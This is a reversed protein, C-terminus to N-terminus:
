QSTNWEDEEKVFDVQLPLAVYVCPEPDLNKGNIFNVLCFEGDREILIETLCGQSWEGVSKNSLMKGGFDNNILKKPHKAELFYEVDRKLQTVKNTVCSYEQKTGKIM